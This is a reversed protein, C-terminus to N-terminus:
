LLSIIGQLSISETPPPPPPLYIPFKVQCEYLSLTCIIYIIKYIDYYIYRVREIFIQQAVYLLFPTYIYWVM